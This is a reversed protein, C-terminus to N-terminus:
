VLRDGGNLAPGGLILGDGIVGARVASAGEICLLSTEGCVIVFQQAVRDDTVAIEVLM